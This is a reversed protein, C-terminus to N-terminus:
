YYKLLTTTLFFTVYCRIDVTKFQRAIKKYKDFFNSLLDHGLHMRTSLKVKTFRKIKKFM